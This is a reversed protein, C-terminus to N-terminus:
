EKLHDIFNGFNQFSTGGQDVSEEVMKKLKVTNAKLDDNSLLMEIKMKIENRTRIGNEDVDIRLGIKWKDCIYKQNYFQDAFYPWCLFPVGRSLGELISNWGCHSLFCAISPHSLVKEQPAWEIIKGIGAVREMFGTPYEVQCGNALDRRVVWLFPRGSLELGLALEDVQNQSFVTSSGFSVYVVSTVPKENLWSLCSTDECLFISFNSTSKCNSTNLLPGIPLLKPNLDCTSSELEYSTNCLLWKVQNCPKGSILAVEFLIKQTKLDIPFSWALEDKRWPPIGDSLSLVNNGVLNGAFSCSM